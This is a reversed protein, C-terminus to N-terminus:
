FKTETYRKYIYIRLVEYLHILHLKQLWFFSFCIYQLTNGFNFGELHFLTLAGTVFSKELM